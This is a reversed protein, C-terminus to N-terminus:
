RREAKKINELEGLIKDLKKELDSLRREQDDGAVRTRVGIARGRAGAAAAAAARPVNLVQVKTQPKEGSEPKEEPTATAVTKGDKREVRVTMRRNETARESVERGRERALNRNAEALARQAEALRRTASRLEDNAAKAKIALAKVEAQLKAHAATLPATDKKPKSDAEDDDNVVLNDTAVVLRDGLEKQILVRVPEDAKEKGDQIVRFRAVNERIPGDSDIVIDGLQKVKADLAAKEAKVKEDAAAAKEDKEVRVTRIKTIVDRLGKVDDSKLSKIVEPMNGDTLKKIQGELNALDLDDLDLVIAGGIAKSDEGPKVIIQIQRKEKTDQAWTPALPLMLTAFGLSALMGGRSLTRSSNGSMIMVLRRKLHQVHGFGSAAVPLPNSNGSLFDVAELLTEAYARSAKPMAWVIWADCCQEEADRLGRRAWWVVPLWWFLVTVVLEFQRVWHDGRALHAVEHTVLARFQEANLRKYLDSPIVIVASGGLAWVVPSLEGPMTVVNPCRTLALQIVLRDVEDVIHEPAPKALALAKRFRQIRTVVLILTLVSGIPWVWAVIPGFPLWGLTESFRAALALVTERAGPTPVLAEDLMDSEGDNLSLDLQATNAEIEAACSEVADSGLPAIAVEPEVETWGVPVTWVPPTVLKILVLLWLIHRLAPHRRLGLGCVAAFIALISAAAANELGVRFIIPM